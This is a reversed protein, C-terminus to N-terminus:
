SNNLVKNFADLHSYSGDLLNGYVRYIDAPAGVMKETIDEIDKEEIMVGVELADTKSKLGKEMLSDYLYQLESLVFGGINEDTIPVAIDYKILLGKVANMHSQESRTINKFVREGWKEYLKTYVDRAVKEEQYMFILGAIQEESLETTKSTDTNQSSASSNTTEERDQKGAIANTSILTAVCVLSLGIKKIKNKIM